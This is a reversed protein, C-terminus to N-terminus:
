REKEQAELVLRFISGKGLASELEVRGRHTVMVHRVIALGLGTGGLGRTRAKDVRYFREFIREHESAAIGPGQDRVELVAERGAGAAEAVREYSRVEVTSGEPSYRIANIVLNSLAMRLANEDAQVWLSAPPAHYSVRIDKSEALDAVQEGLGVLLIGLDTAEFRLRHEASELRSLSLLDSIIDSLQVVNRQAKQVFRKCSPPLEPDTLAVDLFGRVATLPTKLEHSVNSVFDSRVGELRRLETVDRLVLVTGRNPADGAGFAVAAVELHTVGSGLDLVCEATRTDRSQSGDLQLQSILSVWNPHRQAEWLGMGLADERAIGLLRRGSGNIFLIRQERDVAILGDAMASLIAERESKDAQVLGIQNEIEETMTNIADALQRFEKGGGGSLRSPGRGSGLESVYKSIRTLPRSFLRAIAFAVPLSLLCAYLIGRQTAHQLSTVRADRDATSVAVRAYAVIEGGVLVPCALYVMLEGRTDSFRTVATRLKQIEMRHLHNDMSAADELSDFLVRGDKAIITLRSQKLHGAVQELAATPFDAPAESWAAALLSGLLEAERAVREEVGHFVQEEIGRTAFTQVLLGALMIVLVFGGFLKGLFGFPM